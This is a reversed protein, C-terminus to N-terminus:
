LGYRRAASAVAEAVVDVSGAEGDVELAAQRYCPERSRLMQQLMERPDRGALLPRDGSGRLRTAATEPSVTLYVLVARPEAALLNGPQAAWGGGTAIVMPERELLEAMAERELERFVSEGRTAFITAVSQGSAQTIMEDIDMFPCGLRDAALRGVTSKGAGPLGVLVLHHKM